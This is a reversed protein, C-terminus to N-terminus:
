KESCRQPVTESTQIHETLCRDRFTKAFVTLSKYGNVYVYGNYVNIKTVSEIMSTQCPELYVM